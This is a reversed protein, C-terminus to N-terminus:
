RRAGALHPATPVPYPLSLAPYLVPQDLRPPAPRRDLLKVNRDRARKLGDSHLQSAQQREDPMSVASCRRERKIQLDSSRTVYASITKISRAPTTPVAEVAGAPSKLTFTPPMLTAGCFLRGSESWPRRNSLGWVFRPFIEIGSTPRRESLEWPPAEASESELFRPPPGTFGEVVLVPM